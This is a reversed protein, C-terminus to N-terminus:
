FEFIYKRVNKESWRLNWKRVNKVKGLFVIEPMEGVAHIKFYNEFMKLLNM